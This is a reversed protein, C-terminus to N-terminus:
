EAIPTRRQWSSNMAMARAALQIVLLGVIGINTEGARSAVGIVWSSIVM